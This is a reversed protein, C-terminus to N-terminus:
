VHARGIERTASVFACPAVTTSSFTSGDSFRVPMPEAPQALLAAGVEGANRATGTEFSLPRDSRLRAFVALGLALCAALALAGLPLRRRRRAAAIAGDNAAANFLRARVSQLEDDDTSSRQADGIDGRLRIWDLPGKANM